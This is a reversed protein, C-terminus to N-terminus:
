TVNKSKQLKEAAEKLAEQFEQEDCLVIKTTDLSLALGFTRLFDMGILIDNSSPELIVIGDKTRDGVTAKGIAILKTHSAGDALTVSTTGALPLGLPFAKILPMAIFGSFGTDIITDFETGKNNFVGALGIRLSPNGNSDFFGAAILM